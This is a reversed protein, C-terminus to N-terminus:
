VSKGSALKENKFISGSEFVTSNRFNKKKLWIEKCYFVELM